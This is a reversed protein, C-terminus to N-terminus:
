EVGVIRGMGNLDLKEESDSAFGTSGKVVLCNKIGRKTIQHAGGPEGTQVKMAMISGDAGGVILLRMGKITAVIPTPYVTDYPRGGPASTWVCEGTLKDFAYFRHKRQATDCWGDIISGVIVLDGDVIPSGTRGGHTTWSGFEETLSRSWLVKGDNSFATLENCAGFVYINGTAPDGAPAAWAIRRPPVDSEYVNIRHEWIQKGTNADLCVVREQMSEGEGATNFLFVRGNMVIPSSRGGFDAKWLLNQGRPSGRTPLGKECLPGDRSPGRWDPWDSGSAGRDNAPAFTVFLLLTLYAFIGPNM